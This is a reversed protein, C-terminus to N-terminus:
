LVDVQGEASDNSTFEAIAVPEGSEIRVSCDIATSDCVLRWKDDTSFRDQSPLDFIQDFGRTIFPLSIGVDVENQLFLRKMRGACVNCFEKMFDYAEDSSLSATDTLYAKSALFKADRTAFHARFTIRVREGSVLILSVWHALVERSEKIEEVTVSDAHALHKLHDRTNLRIFEKLKELDTAAM